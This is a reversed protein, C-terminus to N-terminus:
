WLPSNNDKAALLVSMMYHVMLLLKVTANQTEHLYM